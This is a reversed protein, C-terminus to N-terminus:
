STTLPARRSELEHKRGTFRWKGDPCRVLHDRYRGLSFVEPHEDVIDLLLYYSDVTAQDGGLSIRPQVV